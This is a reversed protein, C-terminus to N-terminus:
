PDVRAAQMPGIYKKAVVVNDVYLHQDRPSPTTGGHYVNMWIQEIKLTNVDRFRIDTKEYAPRGDIWVRLTGDNAGKGGDKGVTNLKVYQEVCYWRNNDLFGRYGKTWIWGSGYNGEMDAHYCYWGLPQKGALPNGEPFTLGFSGRASWGNKGNVKRGGWGAKNYTGSVGPMKGGQVTQKWDDGFRLYYRFYVEEPESGIKKQFQYTMNMATLAGKELHARCAKGNLPEFKTEPHAAITDVKGASQTWEKKWDEAEFGTAFIVDPNKEIGRDGPHKAALGLLAEVPQVEEGQDCAFVGVEGGSYQKSTVLRLVARDITDSQKLGGLDFRVLAPMAGDIRLIPNNGQARYTSRVLHTDAVATLTTPKGNVTLVLLPRDKAAEAERSHFLYNGSEKTNRLLIGKNRVKGSLWDRTLGTVDWEIAQPDKKNAIAAVAFPKKGQQVGDADRWDGERNRWALQGRRNYHTHNAGDEQGPAGEAWDDPAASLASTGSLLALALSTM